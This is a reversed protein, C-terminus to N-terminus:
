LKKPLLAVGGMGGLFLSLCLCLLHKVNIGVEGFVPHVNGHQLAHLARRLTEGARQVRVGYLRHHLVALGQLAARAMEESLVEGLAEVHLEEVLVVLWLIDPCRRPANGRTEHARKYHDVGVVVTEHKRRTQSRDLDDDHWYAFIGLLERSDRGLQLWGDVLQAGQTDANLIVIGVILTRAELKGIILQLAHWHAKDHATAVELIVGYLDHAAVRQLLLVHAEVADHLAHLVSEVVHLLGYELLGLRIAISM